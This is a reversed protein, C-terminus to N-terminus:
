AERAFRPADQMHQFAIDELMSLDNALELDRRLLALQTAWMCSTVIQMWDLASTAERWRQGILDAFQESTRLTVDSPGPGRDRDIAVAHNM